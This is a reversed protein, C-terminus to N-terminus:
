HWRAVVDEACGVQQVITRILEEGLVSRQHNELLRAVCRVAALRGRLTAVAALREAELETPM